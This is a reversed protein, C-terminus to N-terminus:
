GSDQDKKQQSLVIPVEFNVQDGQLARLLDFQTVSPAVDKKKKKKPM